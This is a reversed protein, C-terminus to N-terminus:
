VWTGGNARLRSGITIQDLQVNNFSGMVSTLTTFGGGMETINSLQAPNGGVTWTGASITDFDEDPSILRTTFGGKYFADGLVNWNGRDTGNGVVITLGTTANISTKTNFWMIIHAGAELGSLDYPATSGLTTTFIEQTAASLKLGIAGTGEVFDDDTSINGVNFGTTADCSNVIEGVLIISM